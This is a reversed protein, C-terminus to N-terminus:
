DDIESRDNHIAPGSYSNDEAIQEPTRNGNELTTPKKPAPPAIALVRQLLPILPSAKGIITLVDEQTMGTIIAIESEIACREEKFMGGKSDTYAEIKKICM